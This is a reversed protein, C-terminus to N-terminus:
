LREQVVPADSSHLERGVDESEEEVGGLMRLPMEALHQNGYPNLSGRLRRPIRRQAALRRGLAEDGSQREMGRITSLGIRTWAAPLLGFIMSSNKPRGLVPLASTL